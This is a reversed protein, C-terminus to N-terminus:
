ATQNGANAALQEDTAATTGSPLATNGGGVAAEANGVAEKENKYETGTQTIAESNLNSLQQQSFGQQSPGAAVIPAFTSQLTNFVQSSSGFVTSAQQQAQTMFGQQSQAIQNQQKTAGCLLAVVGNYEFHESNDLVYQEGDWHYELKTFIRM